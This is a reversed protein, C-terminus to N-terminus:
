DCSDLDPSQFCYMTDRTLFIVFPVPYKQAKTASCMYLCHDSCSKIDFFVTCLAHVCIGFCFENAARVLFSSHKPSCVTRTYRLKRGNFAFPPRASPRLLARPCFPPFWISRPNMLHGVLEPSFFSHPIFSHRNQCGGFSIPSFICDLIRCLWCVSSFRFYCLKSTQKTNVNPMNGVGGPESRRNSPNRHWQSGNRSTTNPPLLAYQLM